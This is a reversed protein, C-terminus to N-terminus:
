ARLSSKSGDEAQPGNSISALFAVSDSSSLAIAYSISRGPKQRCCSGPVIGVSGGCGVGPGSMGLSPVGAVISAM